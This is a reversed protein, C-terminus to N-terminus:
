QLMFTRATWKPNYAGGADYCARQIQYCIVGPKPSFSQGWAAPYGGPPYPPQYGPAYIDPDDYTASRSLAAGVALGVVGGAIAAGAARGIHVSHHRHDPRVKRHDAPAAPRTDTLVLAASIAGLVSLNLLIARM